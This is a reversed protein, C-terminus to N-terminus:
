RYDPFRGKMAEEEIRIRRNLAAFYCPFVVILVVWAKMALALGVLEPIINLFYNPHRVARFLWGRKLVHDQALLMKVTWFRGLERVVYVLVLMAFAYLAIGLMAIGDVQASRWWGEAFALVYFTIHLITIMRSNAAGFEQAGEARLRAENRRSVYLTGLRLLVAVAFFGVLAPSM